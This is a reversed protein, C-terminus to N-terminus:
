WADWRAIWLCCRLQRQDYGRLLWWFLRRFHRSGPALVWDCILSTSHFFNISQKFIYICLYDLIKPVAGVRKLSDEPTNDNSEDTGVKPCAFPSSFYMADEFPSSITTLRQLWPRRSATPRKRRPTLSTTAFLVRFSRRGISKWSSM